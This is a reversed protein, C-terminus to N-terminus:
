ARAKRREKIRKRTAVEVRAVMIGSETLEPSECRLGRKNLMQKEAQTVLRLNSLDCNTKDGDLFIVIHGPPIPGHAAEWV